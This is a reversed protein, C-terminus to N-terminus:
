ISKKGSILCAKSHLTTPHSIVCGTDADNGMRHDKKIKRRVQDVARLKGRFRATLSTHNCFLQEWCADRSWIWTWLAVNIQHLDQHSGWIINDQICWYLMLVFPGRGWCDWTSSAKVADGWTGLWAIHILSRLGWQTRMSTNKSGLICHFPKLDASMNDDPMYMWRSFPVPQWRSLFLERLLM